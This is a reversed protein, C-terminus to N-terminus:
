KPKRDKIYQPEPRKTYPQPQTETFDAPRTRGQKQEAPLADFDAQERERQTKRAQWDAREQERQLRKTEEDTDWDRIENAPLNQLAIFTKGSLRELERIVGLWDVSMEKGIYVNKSYYSFPIAPDTQSPQFLTFNHPSFTTVNGAEDRVRAEASTSVDESYIRIGDTVSATPATGNYIDLSSKESINVANASNIKFQAIPVSPSAATNALLAVATNNVAKVELTANFTSGRHGIGVQGFVDLGINDASGTGITTTSNFQLRRSDDYYFRAIEFTGFSGNGASFVVAGQRSADTATTWIADVAAIERDTTTTSEGKFLLRTGFNAAPTGSTNHGITLLTNVANTIGTNATWTTTHASMDLSQNGAPSTIADWSSSGGGGGTASLTGGSLSLGSGISIEEVDGSGATSRGLLKNTSINQLKAFTVADNAITASIATAGSGTVDGSLTITQNGTLYTNTDLSWTDAATKRLLGSTGSLGAVATLDADLAQADTIGYGGLTTPKSTLSAFTHAHSAGAYTASLDPIDAAVLARFTPAAASGTTPGAFIRNASQASLSFTLAPTTTANAVSGTFLPSLNGASFSTVTGSGGGAACTAWSLASGNTSLCKGSNGSQSPFSISTSVSTVPVLTNFDATTADPIAFCTGTTPNRNLGEVAAYFCATSGRRLYFDVEGDANSAFSQPAAVVLVGAKVVRLVKVQVNAAPVGPLMPELTGTVHCYLDSDPQALSPLSFLALLFTFLLRNM